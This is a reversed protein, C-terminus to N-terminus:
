RSSAQQQSRCGAQSFRNMWAAHTSVRLERARDPGLEASLRREFDDGMGAWLRLLREGAPQHAGHAPATLGAREAALKERAQDFGSEPRSQLDILMEELTATSSRVSPANTESFAREAFDRLTAHMGELTREILARERNSLSLAASAEDTVIPSREETIAPMDFRVECRKAMERLEEPPPNLWVALDAAARADDDNRRATQAGPAQQPLSAAAQVDDPCRTRYHRRIEACSDRVAEEREGVRSSSASGGVGSAESSRESHRRALLARIEYVSVVLVASAAAVLLLLIFSTRAQGRTPDVM